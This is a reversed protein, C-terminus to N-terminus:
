RDVNEAHELFLHLFSAARNLDGQQVSSPGGGWSYRTDAIGQAMIQVLADDGFREPPGEDPCQLCNASGRITAM